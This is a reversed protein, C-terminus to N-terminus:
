WQEVRVTLAYLFSGYAATDILPPGFWPEIIRELGIPQNALQGLFAARQEFVPGVTLTVFRFMSESM